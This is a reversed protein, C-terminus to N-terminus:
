SRLINFQGARSHVSLTPENTQEPWADYRGTLDVKEKKKQDQM